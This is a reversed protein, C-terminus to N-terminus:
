KRYHKTHKNFTRKQGSLCYQFQCSDQNKVHRDKHIFGLFIVNTNRLEYLSVHFYLPGKVLMSEMIYM